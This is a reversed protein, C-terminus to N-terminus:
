IRPCAGLSVDIIKALIILIPVIITVFYWANLINDM